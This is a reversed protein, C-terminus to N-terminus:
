WENSAHLVYEFSLVHWLPIHVISLILASLFQKLKLNTWPLVNGLCDFSLTNTNLVAMSRGHLPTSSTFDICTSLVCLIQPYYKVKHLTQFIPSCHCGTHIIAFITFHQCNHTTVHLRFINCCLSMELFVQINSHPVISHGICVELNEDCVNSMSIPICDMLNIVTSIWSNKHFIM